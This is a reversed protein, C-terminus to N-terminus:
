ASPLKELDINKIGLGLYRMIQYAADGDKMYIKRCKGPDVYWAEGHSQVQLLIKGKLKSALSGSTCASPSSLMSQSDSVSPIQNLDKDTVGLGFSRMMGYAATGDPMYYRLSDGPSLYWAEGHEEVQLLIRGRLAGVLSSDKKLPDFVGAVSPNQMVAGTNNVPAPITQVNSHSNMPPAVTQPQITPTILESTVNTDSLFYNIVPLSIIYGMNGDGGATATPIGIYNGFSDFAAGGSNGPNINADTKIQYPLDAGPLREFGSVSGKTYTITDGGVGPYGLIQLEDGIGVNEEDIANRDISVHPFGPLGAKALWSSASIWEGTDVDKMETIKLLAVDFVENVKEIEVIAVGCMPAKKESFTLCLIPFFSSGTDEVIDEIVHYNTLIHGQGDIITASGSAYPAYQGDGYSFYEYIKVVSIIQKTQVQAFAPAAVALVLFASIIAILLKKM